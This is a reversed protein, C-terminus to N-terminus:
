ALVGRLLVPLVRCEHCLSDCKAAIALWWARRNFCARRFLLHFISFSAIFVLNSLYHLHFGALAALAILLTFIIRPRECFRLYSWFLLLNFFLVPANYTASRAYSLTVPSFCAFALALVAFGTRNPFERWLVDAFLVMAM